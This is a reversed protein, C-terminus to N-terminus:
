RGGLKLMFGGGVEEEEKGAFLGGSAAGALGGFLGGGGGGEGRVPAGPTDRRRRREQGAKSPFTPFMEERKPRPDERFWEHRLAEEASCRREPDLMLMWELLEAGKNTLLPYRGRLLSGQTASTKPFTLSKAHPLRRFSPYTADTPVGVLSFIKSLQDLESTGQLPPTNTLLEAFICGISWIDIEPGYKTAGLLLEPARYWLTVVLQTLPEKTPTTTTTTTSTSSSSHFRALGFDAIKIQGRNNMLLNSTKLDRHLIWHSHLHATASLLQSLITKLESPLFPEHMEETLTKLDHEIFDMVLYVQDLRDGMVVERLNVINPHGRCTMLTSIERLSTIPFGDKERELKLKKLAVVEGTAISRARSVIGYSGEEIHNLLTYSNEVNRCSTIEPAPFRLLKLPLDAAPTSATHHHPSGPPQSDLRRRKTPPDNNNNASTTPTTTNSPSSAKLQRSKKLEKAKKKAEKEAKLRALVAPDEEEEADWRSKQTAM